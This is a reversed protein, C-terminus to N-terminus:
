VRKLLVEFTTAMNYASYFQDIRTSLSAMAKDVAADVHKEAEVMLPAKLNARLEDRLAKHIIDVMVEESPPFIHAM